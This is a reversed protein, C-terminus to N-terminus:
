AGQRDQDQQAQQPEHERALHLAHPLPGQAEPFAAGLHQVAVLVLHRELIDGAHLLGLLFDLLDNIEELIGLFELLEASPDGLAHHEHPRGSGALREHGLRDRALRIHREEADAPRVEHLHKDADTGRADAVHEFLALLVRRADDENILNIRHATAPEGPNTAPMIFALLREVGQQHLHISEVGLFADNDDRGRVPGIHKIGRELAGAPEVALDHNIQRGEVPAFGDELDMRASDLQRRGHIEAANGAARRAKGAGVQGVQHILGREEGGAPAFLRDGQGVKLFGAVFHPPAAFAPAPHQIVLFLFDGRVMFCAMRQHAQQHLLAFREVLDGDDGTAIGIEPGRHLQGFLVAVHFALPLQFPHQGGEHAPSDRLLKHEPIDRGPRPAIQFLGGMKGPQHDAVPAHIFVQARLGEPVM